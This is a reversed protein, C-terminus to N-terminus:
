LGKLFEVADSIMEETLMHGIGQYAKFVAQENGAQVIADIVEGSATSNFYRDRTGVGCFIPIDLYDELHDEINVSQISELKEQSYEESQGGYSLGVGWGEYEELWSEIMEQMRWPHWADTQCMGAIPLLASPEYFGLQVYMWSEIAGMSFGGLVFNSVDVGSKLEYYEVVQDIDRVTILAAAWNDCVMTEDQRDGQDYADMSVAYYGAKAFASLATLVSEKDMTVGHLFLLLPKETGDDSYVELLPIDGLEISRYTLDPNDGTVAQVFRDTPEGSFLDAQEAYMSRLRDNVTQVDRLTVRLQGGGSEPSAAEAATPTLALFLAFALMLVILLILAAALLRQKLTSTPFM